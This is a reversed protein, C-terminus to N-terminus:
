RWMKWYRSRRIMQIAEDFQHSFSSRKRSHSNSLDCSFFPENRPTPVDDIVQKAVSRLEVFIHRPSVTRRVDVARDVIDVVAHKAVSRPMRVSALQAQRELAQAKRHDSKAYELELRSERLEAKARRFRGAVAWKERMQNAALNAGEEEALRGLGEFLLQYPHAGTHHALKECRGVLARAKTGYRTYIPNTLFTQVAETMHERMDAAEDDALVRRMVAEAARRRNEARQLEEDAADLASREEELAPSDMPLRPKRDLQPGGDADPHHGPQLEAIIGDQTNHAVQRTAVQRTATSRDKQEGHDRATQNRSYQLQAAKRADKAAADEAKEAISKLRTSVREFEARSIKGDGDVDVTALIKEFGAGTTRIGSSHLLRRLERVDLEGSGDVDAEAFAKNRSAVRAREKAQARASAAARETQDADAAVQREHEMEALIAKRQSEVRQLEAEAEAPNDGLWRLFETRGILGDKDADVSTLLAHLQEPQLAIGLRVMAQALEAESISGDPTQKASSGDVRGGTDIIAFLTAADACPRGYLSRGSAIADRIARRVEM